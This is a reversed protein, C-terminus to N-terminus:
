LGESINEWDDSVAKLLRRGEDREAEAASWEAQDVLQGMHEAILNGIYDPNLADLEWSEDGYERQYGEFRSDTIKAPNPPPNVEEVQEMTLAIRRIEIKSAERSFLNIRERIDRSMDIGSPDHDGLHFIIPTQGAKLWRDLRQSAGWAESDSTYGRCSFYPCHWDACAVEIVGILADKEVWVEPRYNQKAWWDIDFQRSVTEIIDAPDDWASPRRVNRTRDVIRDWDILGARRADSIISGLRKYSQDKNVLWNRSVFQYYLQRLTLDYGQQPTPTSSRIRM